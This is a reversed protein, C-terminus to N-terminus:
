NKLLEKLYGRAQERNHINIKNYIESIYNKITGEGLYLQKAIQKNSNDKMFLYAIDLERNTLYINRNELKKALIQKKSLTLQRIRQALIRAVDGSFVVQGRYADRIAQHLNDAYIEKVLFGDAGVTIGRIILEEEATATLLVVKVMPYSEKIKATTKIGDLDPMHIDMLVVDPQMDATKQLAEEGNEAIGIVDMDNETRILAQVGERFLRQDDVVLVNIM